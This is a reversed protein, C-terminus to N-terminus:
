RSGDVPRQTQHRTIGLIKLREKECVDRHNGIVCELISVLSVKGDCYVLWSPVKMRVDSMNMSRGLPLCKWRSCAGVSRTEREGEGHNESETPSKVSM